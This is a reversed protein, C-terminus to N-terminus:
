WVVVYKWRWIITEVWGNSRKINKSEFSFMKRLLVMKKILLKNVNMSIKVVLFSFQITRTTFYITKM